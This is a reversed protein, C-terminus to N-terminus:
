REFFSNKFIFEMKEKTVLSGNSITSIQLNAGCPHKRIEEVVVKYMEWYLLPEGGWIEFCFGVDYRDLINRVTQKALEIDEDKTRPMMFPAQHCYKCKYNCSFGMVFKVRRIFQKSNDIPQPSYYEMKHKRIKYSISDDDLALTQNDFIVEKGDELYFKFKM